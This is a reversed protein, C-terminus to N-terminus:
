KASVLEERYISQYQYHSGEGQHGKIEKKTSLHAKIMHGKNIDFVIDGTPQLQILPIQDLAAKPMEKITTTVRISAKGNAITQCTYHQEADYKEGTGQPPALTIQYARKWSALPKIAATPLECVFPHESEYRTKPGFKSEKVGALKGQPSLQIVALPTNVFRSMQERLQENSELPKSSDFLLKEGSATTTEMRLKDLSLQLTAVGQADVDTVTWRKILELQNSSSRRSDGIAEHVQTFQEAKYSLAMGKKWQYRAVVPQARCWASAAGFMALAVVTRQFM